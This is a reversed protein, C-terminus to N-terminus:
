SGVRGCLRFEVKLTRRDARSGPERRPDISTRKTSISNRRLGGSARGSRLLGRNERRCKRAVLPASRRHLFARQTTFSGCRSRANHWTWLRRWTPHVLRLASSVLPCRKAFPFNARAALRLLTWRDTVSEASHLWAFLASYPDLAGLGADRARHAQHASM